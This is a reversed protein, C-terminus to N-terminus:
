ELIKVKEGPEVSLPLEPMQVKSEEEPSFSKEMPIEILKYDQVSITTNGFREKVTGKIEYKKGAGYKLELAKDGEINYLMGDDGMLRGQETIKGLVTEETEKCGSNSAFAFVMLLTLGFYLSNRRGM